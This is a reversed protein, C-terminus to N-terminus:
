IYGIVSFPFGFGSINFGLDIQHNKNNAHTTKCHKALGLLLLEERFSWASKGSIQHIHQSSGELVATTRHLTPCTNFCELTTADQKCTNTKHAQELNAICSFMLFCSCSNLDFGKSNRLVRSELHKSWILWAELRILNMHHIQWCHSMWRSDEALLM